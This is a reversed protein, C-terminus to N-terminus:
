STIMNEQMKFMILKFYVRHIHFHSKMIQNFINTIIVSRKFHVCISFRRDTLISTMLAMSNITLTYPRKTVVKVFLLGIFDSSPFFTLFFSLFHFVIKYEHELLYCINLSFIILCNMSIYKTKTTTAVGTHKVDVVCEVCVKNCADNVYIFRNWECYSCVNLSNEIVNEVYCVFIDLFIQEKKFTWKHKYFRLINGNNRFNNHVVFIEALDNSQM